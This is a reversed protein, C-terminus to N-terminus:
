KTMQPLRPDRPLQLESPGSGKTAARGGDEAAPTPSTAWDLFHTALVAQYQSSPKGALQWDEDNASFSTCPTRQLM